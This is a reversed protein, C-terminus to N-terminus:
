GLEALEVIIDHGFAGSSRFLEAIAIPHGNILDVFNISTLISGGCSRLNIFTSINSHRNGYGRSPSFATTKRYVWKM